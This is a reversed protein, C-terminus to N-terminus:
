ELKYYERGKDGMVGVVSAIIPIAGKELIQELQDVLVASTTRYEETADLRGEANPNVVTVIGMRGFSTTEKFRINIITRDIFTDPNMAMSDALVEGARRPAPVTTKEIIEAM